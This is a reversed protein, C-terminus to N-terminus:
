CSCRGGAPLYAHETDDASMKHLMNWSAHSHNVVHRTYQLNNPNNLFKQFKGDASLQLRFFSILKLVLQTATALMPSIRETPMRTNAESDSCWYWSGDTATLELILDAIEDYAM